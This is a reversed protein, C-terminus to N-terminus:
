CNEEFFKTAAERGSDFDKKQEPTLDTYSVNIPQKQNNDKEFLGKLKAKNEIAKIASPLELKGDKGNPILALNRIEEFEKFSDDITYSVAENAQKEAIKEIIKEKRKEAIKPLLESKIKTCQRLYDSIQKNNWELDPIKIKIERPKLGALAFKKIKEKQEFTCM